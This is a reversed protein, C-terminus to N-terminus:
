LLPADPLQNLLDLASLGGAPGKAAAAPAPPPSHLVAPRGASGSPGPTMPGKKLAVPRSRGPNVAERGVAAPPPPPPPPMSRLRSPRAAADSTHPKPPLGAAARRGDGGQPGLRHQSLSSASRLPSLSHRPRAAAAAQPESSFSMTPRPPPGSQGRPPRRRPNPPGYGPLPEATGMSTSLPGPPRGWGMEQERGRPGLHRPRPLDAPEPGAAGRQQLLQHIQRRIDEVGLPGRLPLRLFERFARNEQQLQQLREELRFAHAEDQPLRASPAAAIDSSRQAYYLTKISEEYFRMAPTICAVFLLECNGSLSDMLLQTLVSSRYPIFGANPGRGAAAERQQQSLKEIVTGLAFLSKNISKTDAGDSGTEKLREAGALDVFSLKGHVTHAAAAVAGDEDADFGLRVAEHAASNISGSPAAGVEVYLTFITHSRSSDDNLRHAARRRNRQGERLVMLVDEETDCAVMMLGELFFMQAATHYRLKLNERGQLLDNVRENYIEVYSAQVRVFKGARRMSELRPGMLYSIARYQLGDEAVLQPQAAIPSPSPPEAGGESGGDYENDAVPFHFDKLQNAGAAGSGSSTSTSTTATNAQLHLSWWSESTGRQANPHQVANSTGLDRTAPKRILRLAMGAGGATERKGTKSNNWVHIRESSTLQKHAVANDARFVAVCLEEGRHVEKELLPRVRVAVRVRGTFAAPAVAAHLEEPAPDASSKAAASGDLARTQRQVMRTCVATATSRHLNHHLSPTVLALYFLLPHTTGADAPAGRKWRADGEHSTWTLHLLERDMPPVHPVGGVGNWLFADASNPGADDHKGQLVAPIEVPRTIGLTVELAEVRKLISLQRRTASDALGEFVDEIVQNKHENEFLIQMQREQEAIRQREAEREVAERHSEEFRRLEENREALFENLEETRRDQRPRGVAEEAGTGTSGDAPAGSGSGTGLPATASMAAKHAVGPGVSRNNGAAGGASGYPDEVTGLGGVASPGPFYRATWLPPIHAMPMETALDFQVAPADEKIAMESNHLCYQYLQAHQLLGRGLFVTTFLPIEEQKLYLNERPLAAAAALRKLEEEQEQMQQLRAKEGKKKGVGKPNASSPASSPSGSPATQPQWPFQDWRWGAELESMLFEKLTHQLMEEWTLQSREAALQRQREADIALQAAEEEKRKREEEAALAALREKKSPPKSRKKEEKKDKGKKKGADGAGDAAAAGDKGEADAAGDGDGDGDGDTPKEVLAAAAAKAKAAAEEAAAAVLEGEKNCGAAVLDEYQLLFELLHLSKLPSFRNHACYLVFFVLHDVKIQSPLNTWYDEVNLSRAIASSLHLTIYEYDEASLAPAGATNPVLVSLITNPVLSLSPGTLEGPGASGLRPSNAFRDTTTTGASPLLSSSSSGPRPLMPVTQHLTPISTHLAFAAPNMPNPYALSAIQLLHEMFTEDM